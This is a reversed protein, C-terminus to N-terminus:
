VFHLDQGTLNFERFSNFTLNRVELFLKVRTSTGLFKFEHEEQQLM